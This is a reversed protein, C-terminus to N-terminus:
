RESLELQLGGVFRALTNYLVALLFGVLYAVVPYLLPVGVLLWASSGDVPLFADQSSFLLLSGFVFLNLLAYIAAFAAILTALRMPEIRKVEYTM